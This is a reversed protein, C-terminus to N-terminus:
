TARTAGDTAEAEGRGAAAGAAAGAARDAAWAETKVEDLPLSPVLGSDSVAATKAFDKSASQFSKLTTECATKATRAAFGFEFTPTSALPLTATVANRGVSRANWDSTYWFVPWNTSSSDLTNAATAPRPM